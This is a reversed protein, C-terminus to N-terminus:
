CVLTKGASEGKDVSQGMAEAGGQASLVPLVLAPSIGAVALNEAASTAVGMLQKEVPTLGAQARETRQKGYNYLQHGVSENAETGAIRARM